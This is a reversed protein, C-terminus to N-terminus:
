LLMFLTCIITKFATENSNDYHRCMNCVASYSSTVPLQSLNASYPSTILLQSLNPFLIVNTSHPM